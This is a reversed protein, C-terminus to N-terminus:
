PFPHLFEGGPTVPLMGLPQRAQGFAIPVLGPAVTRVTHLPRGDLANRAEPVSLDIWCVAHGRRRLTEHLHSPSGACALAADAFRLTGAPARLVADARRFHEPTAYLAAHDVPLQVDEPSMATAAPALTHRWAATEMESVASRLAEEADLGAAAGVCTFHLREHQAWALFTPQVGLTLCQVGAACGASRLEHLRAACWVPLSAPALTDGPLQAFWHRMFADREVLELTARLIADELHGGSACGSSSAQTVLRQRYSADFARPRCVFDALVFSTSGDHVDLAPVWWREQSAEYRVFPFEAAAYQAEAYRVLLDPHIAAPLDAGRARFAGVPLATFAHREVAEALAKTQALAPDDDRGWGESDQGCPWEIRAAALHFPWPMGPEHRTLHLVPAGPVRAPPQLTPM